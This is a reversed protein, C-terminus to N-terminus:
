FGISFFQKMFQLLVIFEIVVYPTYPFSQHFNARQKMGLNKPNSSIQMLMILKIPKYKCYVNKKEFHLISVDTHPTFEIM